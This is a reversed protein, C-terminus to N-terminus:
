YLLQSSGNLAGRHTKRTVTWTTKALNIIVDYGDAASQDFQVETPQGSSAIDDTVQSYNLISM